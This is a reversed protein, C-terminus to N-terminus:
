NNGEITEKMKQMAKKMREQDKKITHLQGKIIYNMMQHLQKATPTMGASEFMKAWPSNMIPDSSAEALPKAPTAGAGKPEPPTQGPGTPPIASM